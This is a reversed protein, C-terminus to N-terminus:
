VSSNSEETGSISGSQNLLKFLFFILDQVSKEDMTSLTANIPHLWTTLCRNKTCLITPEFGVMGAM